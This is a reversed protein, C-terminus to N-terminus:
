KNRFIRQLTEADRFDRVPNPEGFFAEAPNQPGYWPRPAQVSFGPGRSTRRLIRGCSSKRMLDGPRYAYQSNTPLQPLCAQEALSCRCGHGSINRRFIEGNLSTAVLGGVLLACVTKM